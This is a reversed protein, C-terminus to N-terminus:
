GSACVEVQCVCVCVCVCATSIRSSHDARRLSRYRVSVCVCARVCPLVGPRTILGVWLGTGSLVCCLVTMSAGPLIRVSLELLRAAGGSPGTPLAKVETKVNQM